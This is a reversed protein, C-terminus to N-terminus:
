MLKKIDDLVEQYKKSIVKPNRRIHHVVKKYEKTRREGMKLLEERLGEKIEAWEKVNGNEKKLAEAKNWLEELMKKRVTRMAALNEAFQEKRGAKKQEREKLYQHYEEAAVASIVELRKQMRHIYDKSEQLKELMEKMDMAERFSVTFDISMYITFCFAVAEGAVEPLSLVAKEVPVHIGKIMIVSFLGWGLSALLCIHGNLNFPQRSYDWYKVKFLKEMGWGTFYELITAGTMGFVFILLVNERVPITSVLVALAGCGYIPLFPGNLFGRNVWKRKQASVYCSEWIWGVFSYIYFFLLWQWLDYM